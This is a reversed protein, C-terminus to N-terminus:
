RGSTSRGKAKRESLKQILTEFNSNGPNQEYAYEATELPTGGYRNQLELSAKNRLLIEALPVDANWAAWHLATMSDHSVADVPVGVELLREVADHKGLSAMEPLTRAQEATLRASGKHPREGRCCAGLIEDGVNIRLRDAGPMLAVVDERGYRKALVLPTDGHGNPLDPNGGAALLMGLIVASRGRRLAHHLASDGDKRATFNPDAGSDLFLRVGAEDEFDLKRALCYSVHDPKPKAELIARLCELHFSESAHYLSENDSPDAGRELLLRTLGAHRQIGSAGYLCPREDGLTSNPDAGNDLLLRALDVVREAEKTQLLDSFCLAPLGQLVAMPNEHALRGATALDSNKLAKLFDVIVFLM